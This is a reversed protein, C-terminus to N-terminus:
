KNAAIPRTSEVGAIAMIKRSRKKDRHRKVGRRKALMKGPMVLPNPITGSM